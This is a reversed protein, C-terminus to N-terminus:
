SRSRHPMRVTMAVLEWGRWLCLFATTAFLLKVVKLLLAVEARCQIAFVALLDGPLSRSPIYHLKRCQVSVYQDQQPISRYSRGFLIIEGLSLGFATVYSHIFVLFKRQLRLCCLHTCPLPSPLPVWATCLPRLLYPYSCGDSSCHWRM